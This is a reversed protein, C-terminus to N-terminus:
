RLIELGVVKRFHWIIKQLSSPLHPFPPPHYHFHFSFSSCSAAYIEDLNLVFDSCWLSRVLFGRGMEREEDQSRFVQGKETRFWRYVRISVIEVGTVKWLLWMFAPPNHKNCHEQNHKESQRQNWKVHLVNKVARKSIHELFKKFSEANNLWTLFHVFLTISFSM